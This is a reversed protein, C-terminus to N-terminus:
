NTVILDQVYEFIYLEPFTLCEVIRYVDCIIMCACILCIVALAVYMLCRAIEWDGASSGGNKIRDIFTPQLRKVFAVGLAQLVVCIVITATSSWVGYTVLKSGLVEIYPAINEATWDIAIGFKECLTNIVLIIQEATTM